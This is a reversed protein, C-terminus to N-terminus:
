GEDMEAKTVLESVYWHCRQIPWAEESFSQWKIKTLLKFLTVLNTGKLKKFKLSSLYCAKGKEWEVEIHSLGNSKIWESMSTMGRSSNDMIIAIINQENIIVRSKCLNIKNFM